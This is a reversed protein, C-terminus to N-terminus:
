VIECRIIQDKEGYCHAIYREVLWELKDDTHNENLEFGADVSMRLGRDGRVLYFTKQDLDSRGILLEPMSLLQSIPMEVDPEIARSDDNQIIWQTGTIPIDVKVADEAPEVFRFHPDIVARKAQSYLTPPVVLKFKASADVSQVFRRLAQRKLPLKEVKDFYNADVGLQLLRATVIDLSKAVIRGLKRPLQTRIYTEEKLFDVRTTWYGSSYIQAQAVTGDLDVDFVNKRQYQGSPIALAEIQTLQSAVTEVTAAFDATQTGLQKLDIM